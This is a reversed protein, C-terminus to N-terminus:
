LGGFPDLDAQNDFDDKPNPEEIVVTNAEQEIDNNDHEDMINTFSYDTNIKDISEQGTDFDAHDYTYNEVTLKYTYLKGLQYFPNEHEVFNIELLSNSMPLYILDGETPRQQGYVVDQFRKKSLILTATDKIQMGFNALMNGDGEWGDVTELYMEILYNTNFSTKIDEGFIGDRELTNRPLYQLDMGYFKIAEITLNEILNQETQNKHLNLYHNIAM